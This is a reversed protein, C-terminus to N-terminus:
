QNTFSSLPYKTYIFRAKPLFLRRAPTSREQAAKGGLFVLSKPPPIHEPCGKRHQHDQKEAKPGRGLLDPNRPVHTPLPRKGAHGVVLPIELDHDQTCAIGGMGDRAGEVVARGAAGYSIGRNGDTILAAEAAAGLHLDGDWSVSGFDGHYPRESGGIVRGPPRRNVLGIIHAPHVESGTGGRPRRSLQDEMGELIGRDPLIVFPTRIVVTRSGVQQYGWLIGSHDMGALVPGHDLEVEGLNWGSGLDPLGGQLEADPVEIPIVQQHGNVGYVAWPIFTGDGPPSVM